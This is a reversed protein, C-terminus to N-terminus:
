SDKSVRCLSRKRNSKRVVTYERCCPFENAEQYVHTRVWSRELQCNWTQFSESLVGIPLFSKYCHRLPGPLPQLPLRSPDPDPVADALAAVAVPCSPSTITVMEKAVALPVAAHQLSYFCSVLDFVGASFCGGAAWLRGQRLGNQIGDKDIGDELVRPEYGLLVLLSYKQAAVM